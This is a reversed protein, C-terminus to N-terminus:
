RKKKKRPGSVSLRNRPKGKRKQSQLAISEVESVEEELIEILQERTDHIEPPAIKKEALSHRAIELEKVLNIANFNTEDITIGMNMSLQMIDNDALISFSNM